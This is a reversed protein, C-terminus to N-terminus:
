EQVAKVAQKQKDEREMENRCARRVWENAKIRQRKARKVIQALEDPDFKVLKGTKSM